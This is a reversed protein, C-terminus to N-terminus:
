GGVAEEYDQISVVRNSPLEVAKYPYLSMHMFKYFAENEDEAEVVDLPQFDQTIGLWLKM